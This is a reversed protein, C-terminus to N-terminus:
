RFIFVHHEFCTSANTNHLACGCTYNERFFFFFFLTKLTLIAIHPFKGRYEFFSKKNTIATKLFQSTPTFSHQRTYLIELAIIILCTLLFLKTLRLILPNPLGRYKRQICFFIDKVVDKVQFFANENFFKPLSFIPNQHQLFNQTTLLNLLSLSFTVGCKRSIYDEAKVGFVM